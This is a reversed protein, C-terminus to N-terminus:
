LIMTRHDKEIFRVLTRRRPLGEQDIKQMVEDFTYGHARVEGDLVAVWQEPYRDLLDPLQKDLGRASRSFERLERIVETPDGFQERIFQEDKDM